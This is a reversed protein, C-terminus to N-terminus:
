SADVIELRVERFEDLTLDSECIIVFSYASASVSILRYLGEEVHKAIQVFLKDLTTQHSARMTKFNSTATMNHWIVDISPPGSKTLQGANEVEGTEANITKGDVIPRGSAVDWLVPHTMIDTTTYQLPGQSSM